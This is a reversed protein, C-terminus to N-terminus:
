APPLLIDQPDRHLVWLTYGGVLTLVPFIFLQMVCAITLITKLRTNGRLWRLAAWLFFASFVVGGILILGMMSTIFEFFGLPHDYSSGSFSIIGMGVVFTMWFLAGLLSLGALVVQIWAAVKHHIDSRFQIPDVVTNMM